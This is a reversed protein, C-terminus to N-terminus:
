KLRWENYTELSNAGHKQHDKQHIHSIHIATGLIKHASVREILWENRNKVWLHLKKKSFM